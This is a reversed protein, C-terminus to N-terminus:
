GARECPYHLTEVKRTLTYHSVSLITTQKETAKNDGAQHQEHAQKSCLDEGDHQCHREGSHDPYRKCRTKQAKIVRLKPSTQSHFSQFSCNYLVPRLILKKEPLWKAGLYKLTTALELFNTTM